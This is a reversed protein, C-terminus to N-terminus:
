ETEISYPISSHAAHTKGAKNGYKTMEDSSEESLIVCTRERFNDPNELRKKLVFPSTNQANIRETIEPQGIPAFTTDSKLSLPSILWVSATLAEASHEVEEGVKRIRLM